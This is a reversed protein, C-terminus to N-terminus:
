RCGEQADTNGQAHLPPLQSCPQNPSRVVVAKEAQNVLRDLFEDDACHSTDFGPAVEPPLDGFRDRFWEESLVKRSDAM